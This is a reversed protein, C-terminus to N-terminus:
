RDEMAANYGIHFGVLLLNHAYDALTDAQKNLIAVKCLADIKDIGVRIAAVMHAKDGNEEGLLEREYAAYERENAQGIADAFAQNVFDDASM